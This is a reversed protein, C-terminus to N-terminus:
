TRGCPPRPRGVSVSICHRVQHLRLYDGLVIRPVDAAVTGRVTVQQAQALPMGSAMVSQMLRRPSFPSLHMELRRQQFREVDLFSDLLVQVLRVSQSMSRLVTIIDAPTVLSGRTAAAHDDTTRSPSPQRPAVDWHGSDGVGRRVVWPGADSGDARERLLRTQSTGSDGATSHESARSASPSSGATRAAGVGRWAMGAPGSASAGAARSSGAGGSQTVTDRLRCLHPAPSLCHAGCAPFTGASAAASV